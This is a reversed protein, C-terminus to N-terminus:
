DRFRGSLRTLAAIRAATEGTIDGERLKWCWNGSITGPTNVRAESGLDLYDQIPVICTDARSFQAVAAMYGAINDESVGSAEPDPLIDAVPLEKLHDPIWRTGSSNPPQQTGSGNAAADSLIDAVLGAERARASIGYEAYYARVCDAVYHIHWDDLCRYWGKTTDNDHTGTYVVCNETEFHQPLYTNWPDGDFAFQLVKMGPYGTQHILDRVEPTLYGLDEAIIPQRGIRSEIFRFFDIGPGKEWHGDAPRGTEAPISFYAEFGRFHDIRVVDCQRFAAQLRDTWWDFVPDRMDHWRYLPNGLHQGEPAFGDPPCGAVAAPCMKDDMQFLEPRTWCDASDPAPYIPLDGIIRIGNERAYERLADWQCSFEYQAWKFFRIEDALESAAAACAEREHTRIARPWESPPAGDYKKELVNFLAADDLYAAQERCFDRYADDPEFRSFALRLLSERVEAAAPYDIFHGAAYGTADAVTTDTGAPATDAPDKAQPEPRTEAESIEKEAAALEDGTLLGKDALARPDIFHINGTFSSASHYPSFAKGVPGLPLIQWYSQGTERLLDIFHRAAASFCGPGFRSPLSFIPLLIGSKRMHDLVFGSRTRRLSLRRREQNTRSRTSEARPATKSRRSARAILEASRARPMRRPIAPVPYRLWDSCQASLLLVYTIIYFSFFIM